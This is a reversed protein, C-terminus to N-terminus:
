CGRASRIERVTLTYRFRWQKTVSGRQYRADLTTAEGLFGRLDRIWERHNLRPPNRGPGLNL